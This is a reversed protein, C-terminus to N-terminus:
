NIVIARKTTIRYKPDTYTITLTWESGKTLAPNAFTQSCTGSQIKVKDAALRGGNANLLLLECEGGETSNNVPVQYSLSGNKSTTILDGFTTDPVVPADSGKEEERGAHASDVEEESAQKGEQRPTEDKKNNSSSDNTDKNDSAKPANALSLALATGGAILLFAIICGVILIKKKNKKAIHM